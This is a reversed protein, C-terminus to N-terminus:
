RVSCTASGDAEVRCQEHRAGRRIDDPVSDVLIRTVSTELTPAGPLTAFVQREGILSADDPDFVLEQRFEGVSEFRGLAVGQRGDLTVPDKGLDIGPVTKLVRFMAQRVPAPIRGSRLADAIIVVVEGDPSQGRGHALQYLRARLADPNTPLADWPAPDLQAPTLDTTWVDPSSWQAKPLQTVPGSVQRVYPGTRDAFWSPRSGDVALYQVRSMWRLVSVTDPDGWGGEGIIDSSISRTTIRWYQDGRAPPDYAAVSARDLLDSARATAGTRPWWVPMMAFVLALCAAVALLAIRRGRAGPRRARTLLLSTEAQDYDPIAAAPDALRLRDITNM